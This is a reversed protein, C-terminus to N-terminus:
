ANDLGVLPDDGDTADELAKRGAAKKASSAAKRRTGARETKVEPKVEVHDALKAELSKMRQRTLVAKSTEPMEDGDYPLVKHGQGDLWPDNRYLIEGARARIESSEPWHVVRGQRVQVRETGFTEGIVADFTEPTITLTKSKTRAM